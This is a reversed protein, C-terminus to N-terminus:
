LSPAGRAAHFCQADGEGERSEAEEETHLSGLPGGLESLGQKLGQPPSSNLLGPVQLLGPLAISAAQGM